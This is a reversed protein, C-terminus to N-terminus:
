KITSILMVSKAGLEKAERIVRKVVSPNMSVYNKNIANSSCHICMRECRETVEIKVEKLM